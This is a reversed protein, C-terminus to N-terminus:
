DNEENKGCPQLTKCCKLTKQCLAVLEENKQCSNACKGKLNYCREDFFENRAPALFFLVALLFFFTRM